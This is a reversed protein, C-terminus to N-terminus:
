AILLLAYIGEPQDWTMPNRGCSSSLLVVHSWTRSMCDKLISSICYFSPILFYSWLIFKGQRHDNFGLSEYYCAESDPFETAILCYCVYAIMCCFRLVSRSLSKFCVFLEQLLFCNRVTGFNLSNPRILFNLDLAEIQLFFWSM